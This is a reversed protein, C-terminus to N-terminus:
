KIDQNNKIFNSMKYIKYEITQIKTVIKQEKHDKYRLYTVIEMTFISMIIILTAIIKVKFLKQEVLM